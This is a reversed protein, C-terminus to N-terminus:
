GVVQLLTASYNLSWGQDWRVRAQALEPRGSPYHAVVTGRVGAGDGDRLQVRAGERMATNAPQAFRGMAYTTAHATM